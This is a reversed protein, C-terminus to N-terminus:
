QGLNPVSIQTIQGTAFDTMTISTQGGVTNWTLQMSDLKITGDAQSNQGTIANAVSNALGAYLQSQLMQVFQQSTSQKTTKVPPASPKQASAENMLQTANLPSGGFSPNTPTYILEGAMAPVAFLCGAFICTAIKM